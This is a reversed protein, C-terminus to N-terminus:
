LEQLFQIFKKLLKEKGFLDTIKRSEKGIIERRESSALIEIYNKWEESTEAIYGNIGNTIVERYAPINSCIIPIGLAMPVLLRNATKAFAKEKEVPTDINIPILIVDISNLLIQIIKSDDWPIGTGDGMVHTPQYRHNTPANSITILSSKVSLKKFFKLTYELKAYNGYWGFTIDKQTHNKIPYSEEFLYDKWVFCNNKEYLKCVKEKTYETGVVIAACEQYMSTPYWDGALFITIIGISNCFKVVQLTIEGTVKQFIIHTFNESKIKNTIEEFTTIIEPSYHPNMHIIQSQIGLANLDKNAICVFRSSATEASGVTIWGLKM